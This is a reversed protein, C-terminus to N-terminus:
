FTEVDLIRRALILRRVESTGAGIEYLKADRLYRNVPYELMYGYGGHIQVADLTTKTTAEATFLIAAAAQMTIKNGKDAQMAADYILLKSAEISTYMDALKAQVLQFNSIEKGFQKREKSYKVSERFAGEALGLAIGAVVVREIDLGSMMVKVGKNEEGLINKAPVVCDEFFLESTKSGRHGMKEFPKSVSFGPFEKEVLFATIGRSGKDKDTKAYVILVDAQPGNTIFTKSGNLIYNDGDRKASTQISVADSGSGPETLGLAGIKEGSCLGPLYKSRQEENGNNYLNHMCLNSHAIYSLAIAASYKGIEQALVVQALAGMGSGGYAEPISAGLVGLDGLKKWMGDPWKDEKDMEEAIPEIENKVFKRVSKRLMLLEESLKV